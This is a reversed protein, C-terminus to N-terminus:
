KFTTKAFQEEIEEEEEWYMKLNEIEKKVESNEALLAQNQHVVITGQEQEFKLQNKLQAIEEDKKVLDEEIELNDYDPHETIDEMVNVMEEFEEQTYGASNEPFRDLEEELRHIEQDKEDNEEQLKKSGNLLNYIVKATKEVEEKSIGKKLEVIEAKMDVILEERVKENTQFTKIKEDQRDIFAIVEDMGSIVSM